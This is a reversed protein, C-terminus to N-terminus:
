TTKRKPPPTTQKTGRAGHAAIKRSPANMPINREMKYKDAKLMQKMEGRIEAQDIKDLKNYTEIISNSENEIHIDLLKNADTSLINIIKSFMFFDPERKDKEWYNLRTPTIGLKEAFQKQNYGKLERAEKLRKGFGDM